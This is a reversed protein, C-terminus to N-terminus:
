TRQVSGNGSTTIEHRHIVSTIQTREDPTLGFFEFGSQIGSTHRVIAITSLQRECICLDIEVTEGIQLDGQVLAGLGGTAIDLSIGQTTRLGGKMLHRLTIPVSFMARPHRRAPPVNAGSQHADLRM